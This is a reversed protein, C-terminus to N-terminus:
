NIKPVNALYSKKGDLSEWFADAQKQFTEKSVLPDQITHMIEKEILGETVIQKGAKICLEKILEKRAQYVPQVIMEAAPMYFEGMLHSNENHSDWARFMGTLGDFNHAVDPFGSASFVVFGQEGKEPFRDPHMINGRDNLLMYPQLVPLLRDMFTKLIGSVNFIYLPSAFVVLDAERYKKRLMFMDDAVKKDDFICEGPSKTWCSYCGTCEKINYDKLKFYEVNAGVEKAGNIFHNVMFTTKSNKNSRYGGDFVVINKIKKSEIQKYDYTLPKVKKRKKEKKPPAFMEVFQLMITADGEIEYENNIFAKDGSVDNNSIDLWLQSDCRIITKPNPHEGENYTCQQESIILHGTTPEEGTLFFQVVTNVGKSKKKNLGLPMSAFLDKITAFKIQEGGLKQMLFGPLYKTLPIGVILLLTIPLLTAIITNIANDTNYRIITLVIASLFLVSWVFNLILNIQYFREGKTISETYNKESFDYTFLRLKFIPPIITVLLLGLYMTAIINEIYLQGLRPSFFVMLAGIIAIGTLGYLFHNKVKLFYAIIFNVLLLGTIILVFPQVNRMRYGSGEAFVNLAIMFVFPLYKIINKM